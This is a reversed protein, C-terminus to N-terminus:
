TTKQEDLLRKASVHFQLNDKDIPRDPTLTKKPGRRSRRFRDMRVHQAVHRLWAALEDATCRRIFKWKETPMVIAMGLWIQSIELVMAYYSLAVGEAGVRRADHGCRGAATRVRELHHIPAMSKM